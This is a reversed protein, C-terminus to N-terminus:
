NQIRSRWRNLYREVKEIDDDIHGFRIDLIYFEDTYEKM